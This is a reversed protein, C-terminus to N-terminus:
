KAAFFLSFLMARPVPNIVSAESCLPPKPRTSTIVCQLAPHSAVTSRAGREGVDVTGAIVADRDM